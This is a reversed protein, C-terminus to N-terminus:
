QEQNRQKDQILQVEMAQAKTQLSTEFATIAEGFLKLRTLQADYEPKAPTKLWLEYCDDRIEALTRQLLENELLRKAQQGEVIVNRPTRDPRKARFMPQMLWAWTM